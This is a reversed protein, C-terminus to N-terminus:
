KAQKSEWKKCHVAQIGNHWPSKMLSKPVSMFHVFHIRFDVWRYVFGNMRLIKTYKNVLFFIPQTDVNAVISQPTQFTWYNWILYLNPFIIMGLLTLLFFKNQPIHVHKHPRTTEMIWKGVSMVSRMRLIPLLNHKWRRRDNQGCNPTCVGKFVGGQVCWWQGKFVGRSVRYVCRWWLVRSGPCVCWGGAVCVCVCVCVCIYFCLRGRYWTHPRYYNGLRYSM